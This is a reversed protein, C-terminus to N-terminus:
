AVGALGRAGICSRDVPWAALLRSADIKRPSKKRSLSNRRSALPLAPGLAVSLCASFRHSSLSYRVTALFCRSLSSVTSHVTPLSCPHFYFYFSASRALITYCRHHSLPLTAPLLLPSAQPSPPPHPDILVPHSKWPYVFGWKM